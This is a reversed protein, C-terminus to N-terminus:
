KIRISEGREGIYGYSTDGSEALERLATLNPKKETLDDPLATVDDFTPIYPAKGGNKQVSITFRQGKVKRIGTQLMSEFMAKKMRDINNVIVRAKDTMRQAEEKYAKAEAELTRIVAAYGDLKDEYAGEVAEMTDMLVQTDTDTEAMEQLALLDETLDYLTM